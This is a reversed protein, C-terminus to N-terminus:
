PDRCTGNPRRRPGGLKEPGECVLGGSDPGVGTDGDQRLVKLARDELGKADASRVEELPLLLQLPHAQVPSQATLIDVIRGDCCVGLHAKGAGGSDVVKSLYVVVLQRGHRLKVEVPCEEKGLMVEVPPSALHERAVAPVGVVHGVHQVRLQVDKLITLVGVGVSLLDVARLDLEPIPECREQVARSSRANSVKEVGFHWVRACPYEALLDHRQLASRAREAVGTCHSGIM